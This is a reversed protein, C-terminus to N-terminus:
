KNNIKYKSFVHYMEENFQKWLDKTLYKEVNCKPSLSLVPIIAPLQYPAYKPNSFKTTKVLFNDRLLLCPIIRPLLM